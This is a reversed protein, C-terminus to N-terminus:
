GGGTNPPAQEETEEQDQGQTYGQPTSAKALNESVTIMRDAIQANTSAMDQQQNYLLYMGPLAAILLFISVVALAAKGALLGQNVPYLNKAKDIENKYLRQDQEKIGQWQLTEQNLKIPQLKEEESEYFKFENGYRTANPPLDITGLTVLELSNTRGKERIIRAKDTIRETGSGTKRIIEVTYPYQGPIKSTIKRKLKGLGINIVEKSTM